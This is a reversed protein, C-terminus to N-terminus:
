SVQLFSVVVSPPIRTPPSSTCHSSIGTQTTSAISSTSWSRGTLRWSTRWERRWCCCIWTRWVILFIRNALCLSSVKFCHKLIAGKSKTMQIFCFWLLFWNFKPSVNAERLRKYGEFSQMNQFSAMPTRNMKFIKVNWFWSLIQWKPFEATTWYCNSIILNTYHQFPM